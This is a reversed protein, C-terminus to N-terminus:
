DLELRSLKLQEHGRGDIYSLETIAPVQRLLRIFDYRQQELGVHDWEARTTWGLQGEIETIFQEVREAAAEAKEQQVRVAARRAENYSLWMSLAGNVALVCIVLGVFALALKGALGLRRLPTRPADNGAPAM